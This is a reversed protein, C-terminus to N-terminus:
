QAEAAAVFARFLRQMPEQEAIWEPHWQVAIGFPHDPREVAEIVGDPAYAVAKLGPALDKVSQHHLSNVQLLPEGLIEGVRSGEEVRIPHVLHTREAFVDAEEWDHNLAGPVQDLIHTYLTGGLAVNAVQLGRCIGLFPKGDDTVSRVLGLEIADRAEDVGGVKPHAQGNFRETAVDGGGTFLLGDLRRYLARWGAEPLDSPILVPAGGAQIIVNIYPQQLMVVPLGTRTMDKRTTIGIIPLPMNM